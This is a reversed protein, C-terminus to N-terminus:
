PQFAPQRWRTEGESRASEAALAMRPVTAAVNYAVAARSCSAGSPKRLEGRFMVKQLLEIHGVPGWVYTGDVRGELVDGILERTTGTRM